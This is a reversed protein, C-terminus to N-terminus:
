FFVYQMEQYFYWVVIYRITKGLLMYFAVSLWSTKFVGLAVALLDGIFPLFTFFALVSGYSQVYKEYLTLKVLNIKLFKKMLFMNGALGILYSSMGGMWNGLSAFFIVVFPDGQTLMALVVVESSFPVITAALFCAFFVGLYGWEIWDM